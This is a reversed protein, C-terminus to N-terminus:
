SSKARNIDDVIRDNLKSEKSHRKLKRRFYRNNPNPSIKPRDTSVAPGTSNAPAEEDLVKGVLIMEEIHIPGNLANNYEDISHVTSRDSELAEKVLVLAATASKLRNEGGPIKNILRKLNFVLRHLYTYADKEQPTRLQNAKKLIKGDADIIGLKFADTEAFPKVLMYLIRLAIANDIMKTM